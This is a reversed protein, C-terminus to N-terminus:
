HQETADLCVQLVGQGLLATLVEDAFQSVNDFAREVVLETRQGDSGGAPLDPRHQAVVVRGAVGGGEDEQELARARDAPQAPTEHCRSM